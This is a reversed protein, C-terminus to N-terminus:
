GRRRAPDGILVNGVLPQTEKTGSLRAAAAWAIDQLQARRGRIGPLDFVDMGPLPNFPNRRLSGYIAIRTSPRTSLARAHFGHTDAVVFTNAKVVFRAVEGYGMQRIDDQSARFAGHAHHGNRHQGATLSQEHEWELREPTVIHSGPIYSFPGDELAVDKLFLWGKATSHFTDSHFKTQPDPRGKEPDTLVAHLTFLPDANKSAVYRMLGQFLQGRVFGALAPLPRLQEPTLTIFRTVTNGQKMERAAFRTTLVETSLAAFAEPPLANEVKVFGQEAFMERHESSVLHTLSRRRRDSIRAALRVRGVHLGRRNLAPSALVPNNRFSADGTAVSAVHVPALLLDKLRM